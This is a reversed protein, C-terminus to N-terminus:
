QLFDGNFNCWIQTVKGYGRSQADGFFFRLRGDRKRLYLSVGAVCYCHHISLCLYFDKLIKTWGLGHNQLELNQSTFMPTQDQVLVM